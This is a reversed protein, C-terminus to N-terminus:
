TSLHLYVDQDSYGTNNIITLKIDNPGTYEALAPAPLLLSGM